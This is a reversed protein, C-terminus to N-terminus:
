ESHLYLPALCFFSFRIDGGREVEVKWIKCLFDAETGHNMTMTPPNKQTKPRKM